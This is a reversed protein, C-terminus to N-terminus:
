STSVALTINSSRFYRCYSIFSFATVYMVFLYIIPVIAFTPQELLVFIIVISLMYNQVGIEIVIARKCQEELKLLSATLFGLVMMSVNFVVVIPGAATILSPLETHVSILIAALTILILAFSIKTAWPEVREALYPRWAKLAMGIIVPLLVMNFIRIMAPIVPLFIAEEQSVITTAAFNVILPITFICFIGSFTTLCISTATNGKALYTFFNSTAGGPCCSLIILGMAIHTPPQFLYVFSFAAMPLVAVQMFLGTAVAKPHAIVRKFSSIDLTLGLTLMILTLAITALPVVEVGFLVIQSVNLSDM